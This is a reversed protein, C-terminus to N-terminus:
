QHQLIHEWVVLIQGKTMESSTQPRLVVWFNILINDAVIFCSAEEGRLFEEM